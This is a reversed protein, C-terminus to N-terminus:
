PTSGGSYPASWTRRPEGTAEDIEAVPVDLTLRLWGGTEDDKDSNPDVSRAEEVPGIVAGAPLEPNQFVEGVRRGTLSDRLTDPMGKGWIILDEHRLNWRRSRPLARGTIVGNAQVLTADFHDEHGGGFSLDVLGHRVILEITTRRDLGAADILHLATQDIWGSARAEAARTRAGDRRQHDGVFRTVERALHEVDFGIAREVDLALDDGLMEIDACLNPKREAFEYSIGVAILRPPISVGTAEAMAPVVASRARAGLEAFHGEAFFQHARGLMDWALDDLSGRGSRHMPIDYRFEVCSSGTVPDARIQTQLDRHLADGKMPAIEFAKVGPLVAIRSNVIEVVRDVKVKHDPSLAAYPTLRTTGTTM